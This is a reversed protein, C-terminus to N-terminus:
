VDQAVLVAMWLLQLGDTLESLSEEEVVLLMDGRTLFGCWATIVAAVGRSGFSLWLDFELLLARGCRGFAVRIGPSISRVLVEGSTTPSPRLEVRGAAEARCCNLMQLKQWILCMRTDPYLLMSRGGGGGDGGGDGDGDGNPSSHGGVDVGAFAQRDGRLRSAVSRDQGTCGASRDFMSTGDVEPM